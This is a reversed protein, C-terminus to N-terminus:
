RKRAAAPLRHRQERRLLFLGHQQVLDNIGFGVGEPDIFGKVWQQWDEKSSLGAPLDPGHALSDAARAAAEAGLASRSGVAAAPLEKVFVSLTVTFPQTPYVAQRDAALEVAALDQANPPLVVLRLTEGSLTKGGVKIEPAPDDVRGAQKPTLRITSNGAATTSRAADRRQHDHDPAFRAIAPRAFAVDFDAMGRLEPTQPNEVNDVIVRYVVSQGEYIENQGLSSRSRRRRPPTCCPRCALFSCSRLMLAHLAKM